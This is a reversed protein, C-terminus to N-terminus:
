RRLDRLGAVYGAMKAADTFAMMAPVALLAALRQASPDLIRWARRLPRRAYGLAGVAALAVAWRRRSFAAAGAAAYVAFRIAHREPYMGGMADGRAYGSYQHWHEALTRRPRWYAVADRALDMRAGLGRWRLNLYMDEGRALWEPYGGAAQFADRRFAISRASPM